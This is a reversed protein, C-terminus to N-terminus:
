TRKFSLHFQKEAENRLLKLEILGGSQLLFTITHLCTQVAYGESGNAVEQKAKTELPV